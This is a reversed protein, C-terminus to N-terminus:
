ITTRNSRLHMHLNICYLIVHKRKVIHYQTRRPYRKWFFNQTRMPVWFKKKKGREHCSSFCREFIVSDVNSIRATHLVRTMHVEFYVESVTSDRLSLPLADSRSIRLDSTQNRMPVWFKKKTGREHCSSFWREKYGKSQSYILLNM